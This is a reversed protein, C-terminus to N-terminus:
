NLGTLTCSVSPKGQNQSYGQGDYEAILERNIAGHVYNEWTINIRERDEESLPKKGDDFEEKIAEM